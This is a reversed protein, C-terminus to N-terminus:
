GEDTKACLKTSRATACVDWGRFKEGRQGDDGTSHSGDAFTVDLKLMPFKTVKNTSGFYKKIVEGNRGPGSDGGQAEDHRWTSCTEDKKGSLNVGCEYYWSSHFTSPGSWHTAYETLWWSKSQLGRVNEKLSLEVQQIPKCTSGCRAEIAWVNASKYYFHAKDLIHGGRLKYGRPTSLQPAVSAGTGTLQARASAPLRTIAVNGAAPLPADAFFAITKATAAHAGSGTVAPLVTLSLAMASTVVGRLARTRYMTSSIM